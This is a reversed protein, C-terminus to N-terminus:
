TMHTKWTERTDCFQPSGRGETTGERRGGEVGGEGRGGRSTDFHKSPPALSLCLFSFFLLPVVLLVPLLWAIICGPVAARRRHTTSRQRVNRRDRSAVDDTEWRLMAPRPHSSAGRTKTLWRLRQSCSRNARSISQALYTSLVRLFSVQSPSRM